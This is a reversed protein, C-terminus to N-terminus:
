SRNSVKKPVFLLLFILSGTVTVSVEEVTFFGQLATSLASFMPPSLRSSLLVLLSISAAECNALPSLVDGEESAFSGKSETCSSSRGVRRGGGIGDLIECLVTPISHGFVPLLSGQGGGGIVLALLSAGRGGSGGFPTGLVSFGM